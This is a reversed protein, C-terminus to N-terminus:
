EGLVLFVPVIMVHKVVFEVAMVVLIGAGFRCSSDKIVSLTSLLSKAVIVNICHRALHPDL